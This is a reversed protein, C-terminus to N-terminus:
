KKGKTLVPVIQWEYNDFEVIRLEDDRFGFSRLVDRERSLKEKLLPPATEIHCLDLVSKWEDSM